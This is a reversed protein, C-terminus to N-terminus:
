FQWGPIWAKTLGGHGFCPNNKVLEGKVLVAEALAVSLPQTLTQTQTQLNAHVQSITTIWYGFQCNGSYRIMISERKLMKLILRWNKLIYILKGKCAQFYESRLKLEVMFEYVVTSCVKYKM